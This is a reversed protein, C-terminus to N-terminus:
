QFKESLPSGAKSLTAHLINQDQVEAFIETKKATVVM